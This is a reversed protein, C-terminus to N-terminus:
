SDLLMENLIKCKRDQSEDHVEKFHKKLVSELTYSKDCETCQFPKIGSHNLMHKALTDKRLEKKCVPCPAKEAKKMYVPMRPKRKYKGGDKEIKHVQVEHVSLLGKTSFDKGCQSCNLKESYHKKRHVYLSMRKLKKFCVDCEVVEAYKPYLKSPM